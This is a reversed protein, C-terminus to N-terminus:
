LVILLHTVGVWRDDCGRVCPRQTIYHCVLFNISSGSWNVELLYFILFIPFKGLGFTFFFHRAAGARGVAIAIFPPQARVCTPPVEWRGGVGPARGVGLM